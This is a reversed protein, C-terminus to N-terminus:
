LPPFLSNLTPSLEGWWRAFHPSGTGGMGLFYYVDRFLYM